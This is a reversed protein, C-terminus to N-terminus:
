SLISPSPYPRRNATHFSTTWSTLWHGPGSFAARQRAAGSGTTILRHLNVTVFDDDGGHNLGPRAHKVLREALKIAPTLRSANHLDIGNGDM